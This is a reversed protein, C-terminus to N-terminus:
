LTRTFTFAHAESDISVVVQFDGGAEASLERTDAVVMGTYTDGPAITQPRLTFEPLAERLLENNARMIDVDYKLDDLMNEVEQAVNESDSSSSGSSSSGSSSSSSSSSGLSSSSSSSSSSASASELKYVIDELADYIEEKETNGYEKKLDDMFDDFSQVQIKKAVEKQVADEFLIAVNDYSINIPATGCNQVVLMFMTKDKAVALQTYPSLSVFHKKQSTITGDYGMKQGSSAVAAMKVTQACGQCLLLAGIMLLVIKMKM